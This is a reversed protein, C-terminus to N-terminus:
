GTSIPLMKANPHVRKSLYQDIQATETKYGNSLILSSSGKKAADAIYADFIANVAALKTLLLAYGSKDSKKKLREVNFFVITKKIYISASSESLGKESITAKIVVISKFLDSKALKIDKLMQFVIASKATSIHHALFSKAKGIKMEKLLENEFDDFARNIAGKISNLSKVADLGFRRLSEHSADLSHKEFLGIVSKLQLSYLQEIESSFSNIVEFVRVVDM